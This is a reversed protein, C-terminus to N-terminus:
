CNNMYGAVFFFVFGFFGEKNNEVAAGRRDKRGFEGKGGGKM